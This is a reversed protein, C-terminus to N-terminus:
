GLRIRELMPESTTPFALFHLADPALAERKRCAEEFSDATAILTGKAFVVYRNGYNEVLGEKLRRYAQINLEKQREFQEKQEPRIIKM